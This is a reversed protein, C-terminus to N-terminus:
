GASSASHEGNSPTPPRNGRKGQKGLLFGFSSSPFPGVFPSGAEESLIGKADFAELESLSDLRSFEVVDDRELVTSRITLLVELPKAVVAM